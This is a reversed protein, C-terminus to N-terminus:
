GFIGKKKEDTGLNILKSTQEVFQSSMPGQLLCKGNLSMLMNEMGFFQSVQDSIYEVPNDGLFEPYEKLTVIFMILEIMPWMQRIPTIGLATKSGIILKLPGAFSSKWPEPLSELDPELAMVMSSFHTKISDVSPTESITVPM